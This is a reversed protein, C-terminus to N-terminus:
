FQQKLAMVERAAAAIHHATLGYKELLPENPASESFVDRIGIRRMPTPWHESLTEAVASGLGGIISHDESTVVCGTRRAAEVVAREDLPKITPLHLVYVSVGEAALLDAAELTRTTQVGTSILAVDDGEHLRVGKGIEFQYDEDFILPSADRTMRIYMPGEYAAAAHMVQRTEVADAPAIVVMNPIARYLAMDEVSQHTKGGKGILIGSYGGCIKVNLKPQAIVVRVQDLVRAAAFVAFTSVFPILGVAALGAAVGMMNQEAIGMELFRDPHADAFFDVRNANALDGDLVVIREDQNGLEVLAEGFAIRTFAMRTTAQGTM